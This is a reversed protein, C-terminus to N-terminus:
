IKINLGLLNPIELLSDCVQSAGAEILGARDFNGTTMGVGTIQAAVAAKMDIDTDGVYIAETPKVGLELLAKLLPEPHPKAHCVDELGVITDFLSEMKASAVGLRAYQRNSVVGLKFGCGRLTEPLVRAGPLDRLGEAELVKYRKRYIDLWSKDVKGWFVEWAEELTLGIVAMLEDRTIRRLGCEDALLNSCDTIVYSSDVLTMDFDFVVAKVNSFM